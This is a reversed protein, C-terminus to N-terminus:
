ESENSAASQESSNDTKKATYLDQTQHYYGIFFLGQQNIPLFSPFNGSILSMISQIQKERIIRLGANEIKNQHHQSLKLIRPFVSAPTTSAATLYSDKITRNLKEGLGDKQIKELVAFLRGLLYASETRNPDLAMSIEKTKSSKENYRILAAKIAAARINSVNHDAQIRRIIAQFFARPYPKRSLIANTLGGALLPPIKDRDPKGSKLPATQDLLHRITVPRDSSLGVIQLNRYHDILNNTIHKVTSTLWYRVSIRSANPSLGLVYFPTDPDDLESSKTDLKGQKAATLISKIRLNQPKDSIESQVDNSESFGFQPQIHISLDKELSTPKESWFVTTTDGIFVCQERNSLLNNLANAYQFTTQQSVPANYSQLKGYSTFADCNYSVISAGSSQAGRVGKIKPEHLRAIPEEQGSVLCFARTSDVSKEIQNQWWDQIEPLEHIPRKTNRIQFVGFNHTIEELIEKHEACQEPQWNELFRCVASFDSSNIEHEIAIHQEKFAEFSKKARKENKSEPAYGLMYTANDWFLCPNIGSGSPKGQGPVICQSAIDRGDRNICRTQFGHLKGDKTIVVAFSIKQLSFGFSPIEDSHEQKIRTYYDNLEKLIM